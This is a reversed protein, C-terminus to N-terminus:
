ENIFLSIVLLSMHRVTGHMRGMFQLLLKYNEM